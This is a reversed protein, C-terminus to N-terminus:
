EGKKESEKQANKIWGNLTTIAVKAQGVLINEVKDNMLGNAVMTEKVMDTDIDRASALKGVLDNIYKIQAPSAVKENEQTKEQQKKKQYDSKKQQVAKEENGQSIENADTDEESAIGLMATIQYRRGYTIGIGVTQANVEQIFDYKDKAVQIKKDKWAPIKLPESEMWEGSEHLLLTTIVVYGEETRTNQIYSLGYKAMPEKITNIVVDLPAYKSNYFDNSTTNKPNKVEGQFKALAKAIEGITESRNM